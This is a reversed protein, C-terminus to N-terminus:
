DRYARLHDAIRELRSSLWDPAGKEWPYLHIDSSKSRNHFKCLWIRNEIVTPGGAAYPFLHDAEFSDSALPCEYGWIEASQCRCWEASKREDFRQPGRIRAVAPLFSFHTPHALAAAETLHLANNQHADYADLWDTPDEISALFQLYRSALEIRTTLTVPDIM